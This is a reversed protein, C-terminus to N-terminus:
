GDSRNARVVSLLLLRIRAQDSGALDDNITQFSACSDAVQLEGQFFPQHRIRIHLRFGAFHDDVPLHPTPVPFLYDDTIASTKHTPKPSIM